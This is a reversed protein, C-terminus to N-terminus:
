LMPVQLDEGPPGQPGPRGPIGPRGPTGYDGMSGTIGKRGQFSSKQLQVKQRKEVQIFILHLLMM